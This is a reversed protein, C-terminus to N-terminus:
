LVAAGVALAGGLTLAKGLTEPRERPSLKSLGDLARLGLTGIAAKGSVLQELARIKLREVPGGDWTLAPAIDYVKTLGPQVTEPEAAAEPMVLVPEAAEVPPPLSPTSPSLMPKPPPPSAMSPPPPSVADMEVPKTWTTERTKTNWYYTRGSDPDLAEEWLSTPAKGGGGTIRPRRLTISSATPLTAVLIVNVLALSLFAGGVGTPM